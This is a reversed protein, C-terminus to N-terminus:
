PLPVQTIASAPTTKNNKTVSATRVFMKTDGIYTKANTVTLFPTLKSADNVDTKKKTGMILNVAPIDSVAVWSGGDNKLANLMTNNAPTSAKWVEMAATVGIVGGLDTPTATYDPAYYIKTQTAIKITPAKGPAAVRIKLPASAFAESTPAQRVEIVTAAPFRWSPTQINTQPVIGAGGPVAPADTPVAVWGGNIKGNVIRYQYNIGTGFGAIATNSAVFGIGADNRRAALTRLRSGIQVVYVKEVKGTNPRSSTDVTAVTEALDRFIVLTSTTVARTVAKPIIASIDITSTGAAPAAEFWNAKLLAQAFKLSDAKVEADAFNAIVAYQVGATATVTIRENAFDIVASTLGTVAGGISTGSSVGYMGDGEGTTGASVPAINMVFMAAIMVVTLFLSVYRKSRQTSMKFIGGQIKLQKFFNKKFGSGESGSEARRLSAKVRRIRRLIKLPARMM